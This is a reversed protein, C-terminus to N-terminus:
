MEFRTLRRLGLQLPLWGLGLSVTLFIFWAMEPSGLVPSRGRSWPSGLALLVVSGAIYLFSLVLCFTGGFGSVIKSPNDEKFNPYLVGLGVALGNLAFTMVTVASAFYLTRTWPMKLMHCSLLVLGLTVCLSASSALAFKAKVMRGLGLPALGVVWLRKGELSFQPYVFRTTLTALNLSCAGLNLYAVLNIWFPNTLQHSFHRLNIIYAGLLGFLVFTQGWQTTDRWFFRIDKAMLARTDPKVWWLAGLASEVWGRSYALAPSKRRRARLFPWRELLGGRSQVASFAEYFIGGTRTFSLFGFFLVYSSLVLVFFSASVLAGESWNLVGASLWYSPLFPFQAFQTKLLLRDLVTLVRTELMPDTIPEPQFWWAAGALGGLALALAVMQFARRDLYRGLSVALWSGAVGPLIIFLGILFLTLLYFHWPVGRTLGYAALLPAILFVFAWSALLTSEIFKWRFITQASVPLAFLYSTERNRFLNTYGIVLNSLLLLAFLFAFLLFLLRETLLGGLGPFRGMFRLGRHFLLFSLALYGVIFVAIVSWLLSSQERISKLRRWAQLTNIRVLILL